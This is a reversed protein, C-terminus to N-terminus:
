RAFSTQLERGNAAGSINETSQRRAQQRQRHRPAAAARAAASSGCSRGRPRRTAVSCNRRQGRGGSQARRDGAHADVARRHHVKGDGILGADAHRAKGLGVQTEIDGLQHRSRVATRAGPLVVDIQGIGPRYLAYLFALRCRRAKDEARQYITSVALIAIGEGGIDLSGATRRRAGIGVALRQINTILRAEQVADGNLLGVAGIGPGGTHIIEHGAPARGRARAVDYGRGLAVLAM